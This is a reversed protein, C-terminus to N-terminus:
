NGSAIRWAGPVLMAALAVKIADGILFPAVGAKWAAMPDLSLVMALVLAGAAYVIVNGVIMVGAAGVLSRAHGRDSLEGVVAAAAVFGLVYGLTAGGAAFWPLGALGLAAYTAGGIAARSRGLAIAGLLVVLTQGTVPVPTFPVPLAFQASVGIATAYGVVMVADRLRHGPVLDALVQPSRPSAHSSM